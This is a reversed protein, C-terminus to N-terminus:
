AFERDLEEWVDWGEERVEEGGEVVEEGMKVKGLGELIVEVKEKGERIGRTEARSRELQEEMMLILSERAQHPRYGNIIHHFNIFLTRLDKIKEDYQEPNHSLIGLLELFNLLLSKAIRKLVLARDSYKGSHSPTSPPTYLNEIGMEELSPLPNKLNYLDGFSRYIGDAPEEPPQLYRLEPPLDLIRAPLSAAPDAKKSAEGSQAVRLESIRTLNEETFEKWFPPPSPFTATLRPEPQPEDM